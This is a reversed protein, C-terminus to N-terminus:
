APGWPTVSAGNGTIAVDNIAKINGAVRNSDDFTLKDTHTKVAAIDAAVSAGSPMGLRAYADGTLFDAIRKGISGATTMASALADWIVQVAASSLGYGTKDNNTGVTVASTVSGVSGVVSGGVNGTVSSVAGGAFTSRTSIQADVNDALRKGISGSTTFASTLADWVAQVASVQLTMASGVAAPSAPLNTTKANVAAIDSSLSAGAPAGLRAYADGTMAPASSGKWNVVNVGLQATTADVAAGAIKTVNVAQDVALLVSAGIDRGTQTTGGIKIANVDPVAVFVYFPEPEVDDVGSCTGRVVLPGLTNTDTASLDVFYWGNGIETASTAGASPNAFAGGNKSIVVALTKGTANSVHDSSLYAKLAVRIATSLLINAM